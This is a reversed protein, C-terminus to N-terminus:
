VNTGILQIQLFCVETECLEVSASIMERSAHKRMSPIGARSRQSETISIYGEEGFLVLLILSALSGCPFSTPLCGVFCAFVFELLACWARDSWCQDREMLRFM